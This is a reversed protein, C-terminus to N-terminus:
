PVYHGQPEEDDDDSLTNDLDDPDIDDEDPNIYRFWGAKQDWIKVVRYGQAPGCSPCDPAGCMCPGLHDILM